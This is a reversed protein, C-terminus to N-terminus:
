NLMTSPPEDKGTQEGTESDVEILIEVGKIESDVVINVTTSKSGPEEKKIPFEKGGILYLGESDKVDRKLRITNKLKDFMSWRERQGEPSLTNL